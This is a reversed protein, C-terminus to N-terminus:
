NESILFFEGQRRHSKATIAQLWDDSLPPFM